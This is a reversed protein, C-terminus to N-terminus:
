TISVYRRRGGGSPGDCNNVRYEANGHKEDEQGIKTLEERPSDLEQPGENSPEIVRAAALFHPPGHGDLYSYGVAPGPSDLRVKEELFHHFAHLVNIIERLVSTGALPVDVVM